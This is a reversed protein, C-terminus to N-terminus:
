QHAGDTEATVAMDSIQQYIILTERMPLIALERKLAARCIEFQQLASARQGDLLLYRMLARHVDERLSDTALLRRAHRIAGPYDQKLASHQMLRHLTDLFSLRLHEREKLAWVSRFEGLAGDGYLEVAAKLRREQDKSLQESLTQESRLLEGFRLVDCDIPCRCNIGVQGQRNVSLYDAPEAHAQELSQRLRWLATNVAGGSVEAERDWIAEALEARGFHRGQNLSLFALLEASRPSLALAVAQASCLRVLM